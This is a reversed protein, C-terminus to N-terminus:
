SLMIPELSILATTENQREGAQADLLSDYVSKIRVPGGPSIAMFRVGCTHQTAWAVIAHEVDLGEPRDPLTLQLKLRMGCHLSLKSQQIACGEPSFDLTVGSHTPGTSRLNVLRQM